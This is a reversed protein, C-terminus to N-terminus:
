EGCFPAEIVTEVALEGFWEYARIITGGFIAQYDYIPDTFNVELNINNSQNMPLGDIIDYATRRFIILRLYNPFVISRYYTDGGLHTPDGDPPTIVAESRVWKGKVRIKGINTLVAREFRVASPVDSNFKVETRGMVDLTNARLDLLSACLPSEKDHVFLMISPGYVEGEIWLDAPSPWRVNSRNRFSIIARSNADISLLDEGLQSNIDNVVDMAASRAADDLSLILTLSWRTDSSYFETEIEQGSVSTATFVLLLSIVTLSKCFVISLLPHRLSNNITGFKM